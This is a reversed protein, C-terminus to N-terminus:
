LLHGGLKLNEEVTLDPLAGRGGPVHGLGAAVIRDPGMGTIDNGDFHVSGRSIGSLNSVAKLVTSKGAGNTGLLAVFDGRQVELSVGFLIQSRGYHLDVGKVELLPTPADADGPAPSAAGDHLPEATMIR